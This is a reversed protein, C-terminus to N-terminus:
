TVKTVCSELHYSSSMPSDLTGNCYHIDRLFGPSHV